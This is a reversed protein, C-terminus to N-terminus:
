ESLFQQLKPELSPDLKIAEQAHKKALDKDGTKQAIEIIVLHSKVVRSDLDLAQKALSLATEYNGQHIKTQALAWYGQQNTPSLEIAKELVQQARSVKLSDILVYINYIQGLKLHSRFNLPSEKISKELEKSVFDFEEKITEKSVQKASESQAFRMLQEAFFERIQYKGIPSSEVTKKYFDMKQEFNQAHFVKIVYYDTKLPQIVFKSFCFIFCILIIAVLWKRQSFSAEKYNNEQDQTVFTIFGLILFLMMYSNVMDFVTLNQVFYSILLVSFIGATWFDLKEKFYKKWLLYFAFIFISLYSLFGIIGTTALTDFVVNHARDFWVTGGCERAFLCPHFHKTFVLNFNEPGWGLLPKEQWGKWAMDWVISRSIGAKEIFKQQVVSEPQFFLFISILFIIVSVCLFIKGLINLSRKLPVFTLYLFFLLVLGGFFSVIAARGTSLLLALVLFGSALISYVRFNNRTKLSSYFALFVNFLLYTALFSSNGITAGGRMSSSLNSPGIRTFLSISSILIAVFISVGFIKYWDERKKFVSSLVIFFALLHFWMLLGTMREYKSWFSHSFDAGFISSLILFGVFLILVLFLINSKPRYKPFSFALFIYAAFMIEVLAMFYLSKLGVYPFFFRGSILLPTFLILYVAWRIIRKPWYDQYSGYFKDPGYSEDLRRQKKERSKKGM